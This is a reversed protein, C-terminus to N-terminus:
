FVGIVSLFILILAIPCIYRAMAYWINFQHDNITHLESRMSIRAMFWGVFVVMLLGGLPMIINNTLFDISDFITLGFFKLEAWHNFSLVTGIGVVFITGGASIAAIPRKFGRHEELWSVVPELL